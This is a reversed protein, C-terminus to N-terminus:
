LELCTANGPALPLPGTEGFFIIVDLVEYSKGGESERELRVSLVSKKNTTSNIKNMYKITIVLHPKGENM